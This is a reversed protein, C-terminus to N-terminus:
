QRWPAFRSARQPKGRHPFGGHGGAFHRRVPRLPSREADLRKPRLAPLPFLGASKGLRCRDPGTSEAGPCTVYLRDDLLTLHQTGGGLVDLKCAGAASSKRLISPRWSRSGLVYATGKCGGAGDSAAGDGFREGLAGDRDIKYVYRDSCDNAHYEAAYLHGNSWAIGSTCRLSEDILSADITITTGDQVGCRGIRRRSKAAPLASGTFVPWWCQGTEAWNSKSTQGRDQAPKRLCDYQHGM